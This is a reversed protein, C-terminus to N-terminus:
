GAPSPPPSVLIGADRRRESGVGARRAPRTTGRVVRLARVRSARQVRARLGRIRRGPVHGIRGSSRRAGRRGPLRRALARGHRRGPRGLGAGVRCARPGRGRRPAGRPALARSVEAQRARPRPAAGDAVRHALRLVAVSPSVRPVPGAPSMGTRESAVAGTCRLRAHVGGRDAVRRGQLRERVRRAHDHPGQVAAHAWFVDGDPDPHLAGCGLDVPQSASGVVLLNGWADVRMDTASAGALVKTWHPALGASPDLSAVLTASQPTQLDVNVVQIESGFGLSVVLEGSPTAALLPAASTNQAVTSPLEASTVVEGESTLNAVYFTFDPGDMTPDPYPRGLTKSGFTVQYVALGGIWLSGDPTVAVASADGSNFMGPHGWHRGWLEGGGRTPSTTMRRASAANPAIRGVIACLQPPSQPLGDINYIEPM